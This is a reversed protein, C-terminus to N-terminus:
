NKNLSNIRQTNFRSTSQSSVYVKILHRAHEGNIKSKSVCTKVATIINTACLNLKGCLWYIVAISAVTAERVVHYSIAIHKKLLDVTPNQANQTVGLNDSFIKTPCIKDSTINYGLFELMYHLSM